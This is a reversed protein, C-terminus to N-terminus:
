RGKQASASPFALPSATSNGSKRPIKSPVSRRPPVWPSAWTTRAVWNLASVRAMSNRQPAPLMPFRWGGGVKVIAGIGGGVSGYGKTPGGKLDIVVGVAGGGGVVYGADGGIGVAICSGLGQQMAAQRVDTGIINGLRHAADGASIQRKMLPGVVEDGFRKANQGIQMKRMLYVAFNTQKQMRNIEAMGKEMYIEAVEELDRGFAIGTTIVTQVGNGLQQAANGALQAGSRAAHDMARTASKQFNNVCRMAEGHKASQIGHDVEHGVTKAASVVGKGVTHAASTAGHGVTHVASTAGKGVTKAASSVGKGATGGVKKAAKAVNGFFSM